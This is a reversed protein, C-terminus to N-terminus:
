YRWNFYEQNQNYYPRYYYQNAYSDRSYEAADYVRQKGFSFGADYNSNTNESAESNSSRRNQSNSYISATEGVYKEVLNASITHRHIDNVDSFFLFSNGSTDDLTDDLFTYRREFMPGRYDYNYSSSDFNSDSTKVEKKQNFTARPFQIQGPSERYNVNSSYDSSFRPNKFSNYSEPYSYYPRSYENYPQHQYNEQYYGASALQAGLLLFLGLFAAFAFNRFRM